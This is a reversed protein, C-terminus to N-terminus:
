IPMVQAVVVAVIFTLGEHHKHNVSSAAPYAAAVTKHLHSVAFHSDICSCTDPASAKCRDAACSM